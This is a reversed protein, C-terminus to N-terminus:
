EYPPVAESRILARDASCSCRLGWDGDCRVSVQFIVPRGIRPYWPHDPPITMATATAIGSVIPSQMECASAESLDFSYSYPKGEPVAVLDLGNEIKILHRRNRQAEPPLPSGQLASETNIVSVKTPPMLSQVGVTMLVSAAAIVLGWFLNPRHSAHLVSYEPRSEASTTGTPRPQARLAASSARQQIALPESSNSSRPTRKRAM